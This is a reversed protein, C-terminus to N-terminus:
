IFAPITDAILIYKKIRSLRVVRFFRNLSQAIFLSISSGRAFMIEELITTEDLGVVAFDLGVSPTLNDAGSRLM